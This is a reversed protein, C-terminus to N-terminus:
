LFEMKGSPSSRIIYSVQGVNKNTLDEPDGLIGTYDLGGPVRLIGMAVHLDFATSFHFYWCYLAHQTSRFRPKQENVYQLCEFYCQLDDSSSTKWDSKYGMLLINPKMKGVGVCELLATVGANLKM